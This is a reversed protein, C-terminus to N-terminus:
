GDGAEAPEALEAEPGATRPESLIRVQGTELDYRLRLRNDGARLLDLPSGALTADPEGEISGLLQLRGDHGAVFNLQVGTGSLDIRVTRGHLKALAARAAPDM